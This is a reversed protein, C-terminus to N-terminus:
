HTKGDFNRWYLGDLSAKSLGYTEDPILKKARRRNCTYVRKGGTSGESCLTKEWVPGAPERPPVRMSKAFMLAGRPPPPQRLLALPRSSERGARHEWGKGCHRLHIAAAGAVPLLARHWGALSSCDTACGVADCPQGQGRTSQEAHWGSRHGWWSFRWSVTRTPMRVRM